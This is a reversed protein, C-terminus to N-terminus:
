FGKMPIANEWYYLFLDKCWRHFEEDQSGFAISFDIKGDKAPLSFGASKETMVISIKIEDLFRKYESQESEFGPPYRVDKPLIVRFKLGKEMNKGIIPLTSMLIEPSLIWMYEKVDDLALEVSRFIAMVGDMREFSKLEGIRELFEKPVDLNLRMLDEGIAVLFEFGPLLSLVAEGYTTLIYFRQVDKEILKVDQLRALHRSTEQPSIKLKQSIYSHRQKEEAILLLVKLRWPQSLEFLLRSLKTLNSAKMEPDIKVDESRDKM